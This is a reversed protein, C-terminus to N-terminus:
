FQEIRNLGDIALIEVMIDGLIRAWRGIGEPDRVQDQNIEIVCNALGAQGGHLDITNAMDRGSYPENDGVNLGADALREMLPQALRPDRNWLVGIDWPRPAAGYGPSFSHVSFLVPPRARAMVADLVRGIAGHYPAYLERDREERATMNLGLNGPIPTNDIEEVISNPHDIPRNLDIVLRSFGALVLPADLRRSLLRAVEAAGIDYGIHRDFVEPGLGLHHLCEPVTRSAHDCILVVGASGDLNVIEFPAPDTPGLLPALPDNLAKDM